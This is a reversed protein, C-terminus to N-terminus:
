EKLWEYLLENLDMTKLKWIIKINWVYFIQCIRYFKSMQFINESYILMELNYYLYDCFMSKFM